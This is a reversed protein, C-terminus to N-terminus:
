AKTAFAVNESQAFKRLLNIRKLLFVIQWYALNPAALCLAVMSSISIIMLKCTNLFGEDLFDENYFISSFHKM